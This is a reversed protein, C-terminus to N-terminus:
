GLTLFGLFPFGWQLWFKGQNSSNAPVGSRSHVGPLGQVFPFLRSGLGLNLLLLFFLLDKSSDGFCNTPVLVTAGPHHLKWFHRPIIGGFIHRPLQQAMALLGEALVHSPEAGADSGSSDQDDESSAVPALSHNEQLLQVTAQQKHSSRKDDVSNRQASCVLLKDNGGRCFNIDAINFDGFVQSVSVELLLLQALGPM